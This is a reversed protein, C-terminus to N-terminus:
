RQREVVDGNAQEDDGDDGHEDMSTEPAIRLPRRRRGTAERGERERQPMPKRRRSHAERQNRSPHGIM